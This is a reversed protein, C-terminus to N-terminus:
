PFQMKASGAQGHLWGSGGITQGTCPLAQQFFAFFGGLFGKLFHFCGWNGVNIVVRYLPYFPCVRRAGAAGGKAVPIFGGKSRIRTRAPVPRSKWEELENKLLDFYDRILNAM